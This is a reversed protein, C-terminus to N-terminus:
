EQRGIVTQAAHDLYDEYEEEEYTRIPADSGIIVKIAKDYKSFLDRETPKAVFIDFTIGKSDAEPKFMGLLSRWKLAKTEYYQESQLDLSIPTILNLTGNQWGYEFKESVLHKSDSLTLDLRMKKEVEQSYERKLFSKVQDVIYKDDKKEETRTEYWGLYFNSFYKVIEAKDDYVGKCTDSFFLSSANEPLFYQGIIYPLNDELGKIEDSSRTLKSARTKFATLTKKIFNISLGYNYMHSLRGLKTPFSFVIEGDEFLFLVGLNVVEGIAYSHRYKM